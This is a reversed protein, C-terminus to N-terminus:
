LFDIYAQAYQCNEASFKEKKMDITKKRSWKGSPLRNLLTRCITSNSVNADPNPSFQMLKDRIEENTITPDATKLSEIYEIDEIDLKTNSGKPRGHTKPSVTGEITFQRWLRGVACDSVGFCKSRTQFPWLPLHSSHPHSTPDTPYPPPLWPSPLHSSFFPPLHSNLSLPLHFNDISDNIGLCEDIFHWEDLQYFVTNSFFKAESREANKEKSLCLHFVM